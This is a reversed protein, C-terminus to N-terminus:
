ETREKEMKKMLELIHNYVSAAVEDGEWIEHAACAWVHDKLKKWNEM